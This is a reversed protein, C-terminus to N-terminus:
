KIVNAKRDTYIDQIAGPTRFALSNPAFRVIDGKWHDADLSKEVSTNLGLKGYKEHMAHLDLHRRGRWSSQAEPWQTLKAWFPGPYKALPHFYLRYLAVGIIQLLRHTHPLALHALNKPM